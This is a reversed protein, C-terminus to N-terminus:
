VGFIFLYLGKMWIYKYSHTPVPSTCWCCRSIAQVLWPMCESVVPCDHVHIFGSSSLICLSIICTLSSGPKTYLLHDLLLQLAPLYSRKELAKINLLVGVMSSSGSAMEERACGCTQGNHHHAGDPAWWWINILTQCKSNQRHWVGGRILDPRDNTKTM